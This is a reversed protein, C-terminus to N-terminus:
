RVGVGFASCNKVSELLTAHSLSVVEDLSFKGVAGNPSMTQDSSGIGSLCKHM